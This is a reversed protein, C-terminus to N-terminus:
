SWNPEKGDQSHGGDKLWVMKDWWEGPTETRWELQWGDEDVFHYQGSTIAIQITDGQGSM